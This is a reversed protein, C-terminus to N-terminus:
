AFFNLKEKGEGLAGWWWGCPSFMLVNVNFLCYKCLKCWIQLLFYQKVKNETIVTKRLNKKNSKTKVQKGIQKLNVSKQM